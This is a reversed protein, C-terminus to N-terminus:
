PASEIFPNVEQAISRFTEPNSSLEANTYDQGLDTQPASNESDGSATEYEKSRIYDKAVDVKPAKEEGEAIAEVMQEADFNQSGQLETMKTKELCLIFKGRYV